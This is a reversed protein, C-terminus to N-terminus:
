EGKFFQVVCSIQPTADATNYLLVKLPLEFFYFYFAPPQVFTNILKVCVRQANDQTPSLQPSAFFIGLM